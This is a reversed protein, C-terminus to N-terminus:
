GSTLVNETSWDFTLSFGLQIARVGKENKAFDYSHPILREFLTFADSDKLKPEWATDSLSKIVSNAARVLGLAEDNIAVVDRGAQDSLTPLHIKVIIGGDAMLNSLGAGIYAGQLFRGSAPAVVFRHDGPDDNLSDPDISLYCASESCGKVTDRLRTVIVALIDALDGEKSEGAAM